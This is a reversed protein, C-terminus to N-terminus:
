MKGNRWRSILQPLKRSAAVIRRWETVPVAPIGALESNDPFDQTVMSKAMVRADNGLAVHEVIGAQGNIRSRDGIRSSGGFASQAVILCHEGIRVNHAIIVFSHIKTGRGIVTDSLMGREIVSHVGIEVDDGILTGGIHRIRALEGGAAQTFGFGEAGIVAHTFITVRDGIVANPYIVVGPHITVDNGIVCSESIVASAMITARDGIKANAGIVARPEVYAERGLKAAPDIVALESIGPTRTPVPYLLELALRMATRPEQVLVLTKGPLHTGPRAFIAGALSAVAAERFRGKNLFSIDGPGALDLPKAGDILRDGDGVVM